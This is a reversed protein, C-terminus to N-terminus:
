RLLTETSIVSRDINPTPVPTDPNFCSLDDARVNNALLVVVNPEARSLVSCASVLLLVRVARCAMPLSVVARPRGRGGVGGDGGVCAVGVDCGVGGDGADGVVVGADGASGGDGGGACRSDTVTATSSAATRLGTETPALDRAFVAAAFDAVTGCYWVGARRRGPVVRSTVTMGGSTVGGSTVGGSTVTM